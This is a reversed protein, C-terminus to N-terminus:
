GIGGRGGRRPPVPDRRPPVPDRRRGPTDPGRWSEETARRLRRVWDALASKTLRALAATLGAVPIRYAHSGDHERPGRSWTAGIKDLAPGLGHLGPTADDPPAPAKGSWTSESGSVVAVGDRNVIIMQAETLGARATELGAPMAERAARARDREAQREEPTTAALRAQLKAMMEPSFLEPLASAPPPIAPAPAPAAQRPAPATTAALAERAAIRARAAARGADTPTMADLRAKLAAIHEPSGPEPAARAPEAGAPAPRAGTLRASAGPLAAALLDADAAPLTASQPRAPTATRGMRAGMDLALAVLDHESPMPAPARKPPPAAPTPAAARTPTPTPATGARTAMAAAYRLAAAHQEERTMGRAPQPAPPTPQARPQPTPQPATRTRRPPARDLLERVAPSRAHTPRPRAIPRAPEAVPAPPAKRMPRDVLKGLGAKGMAGRAASMRAQSAARVDARDREANVAMRRAQEALNTNHLKKARSENGAPTLGGHLEREMEAIGAPGIPLGPLRDIGRAALSRRDARGDVGAAELAANVHREWAERTRDAFDKDTSRYVRKGTTPDRDRMVVHGHTNRPDGGVTPVRIERAPDVDRLAAPLSAGRAGRKMPPRHVAAVYPAVGGSVEECFGHLLAANQEDSLQHPLSIIMSDCVRANKRDAAEQANMWAAAEEADPPIGRGFVRVAAGDRTVYGIRAAASGPTHTTKGISSLEIRYHVFPTSATM